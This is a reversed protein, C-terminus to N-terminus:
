IEENVVIQRYIEELGPRLIEIGQFGVSQAQLLQLTKDMVHEPADSRQVPILIDKKGLLPEMEMGSILDLALLKDKQRDFAIRIYPKQRNRLSEFSEHLILRGYNIIAVDTCLEEVEHLLHTTYFVTVGQEHIQKILLRIEQSSIPDLLITPEDLFILQGRNVLAQGIEVRRRLGSSLHGIQEYRHDELRVQAIVDDSIEKAKVKDYGLARGAFNFVEEVTLYYPLSMNDLLVGIQAMVSQPAQAVNYGLMRISGQQPRLQGTLLRVITTKGAGNPGLLCFFAGRKVSFSIDRLVEKRGYNFSLNEISIIPPSLVM